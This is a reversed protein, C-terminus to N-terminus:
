RDTTEIKAATGARRQHRHPTLRTVVHNSIVLEIGVKGLQQRTLIVEDGTGLHDLMNSLRARHQRLQPIAELGAAQQHQLGLPHETVLPKFVPAIAVVRGM